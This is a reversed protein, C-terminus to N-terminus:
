YRPAGDPEPPCHVHWAGAALSGYRTLMDGLDAFDASDETWDAGTVSNWIQVAFAVGQRTDGRVVWVQLPGCHCIMDRGSELVDRAMQVTVVPVGDWEADSADLDYVPAAPEPAPQEDLEIAGEDTPEDDWDPPTTLYRDLDRIQQQNM